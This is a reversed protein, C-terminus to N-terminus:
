SKECFFYDQIRELPINLKDCSTIIESHTFDSKGNLKDSLSAASMEIESAFREQTRYKERIAGRLKSYDFSM